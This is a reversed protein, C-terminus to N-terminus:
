GRVSGGEGMAIDAWFRVRLCIECIGMIVRCSSEETWDGYKKHLSSHREFKTYFIANSRQPPSGHLVDVYKKSKAGEGAIGPAALPHGM